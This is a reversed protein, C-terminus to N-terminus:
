SFGRRKLGKLKKRLVTNKTDNIEKVDIESVCVEYAPLIEKWFEVTAKQREKARKDYYASVVSTDLYLKEKRM